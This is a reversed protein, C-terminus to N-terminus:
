MALCAGDTPALATEGCTQLVIGNGDFAHVDAVAVDYVEERGDPEVSEVTATYPKKYFGRRMSITLDAWKQAKVSNLFGVVGMYRAANAGTVILRYSRQSLYKGGRKGWDVVQEDKLNRISSRIGLRALMRQVAQLASLDISTLRVSVGGATSCGEIHGDADFLGRLFGQYFHSSAREVEPTVTKRGHAIGFEKALDRIGATNLRYQDSQSVRRWGKFDSRVGLAMVQEYLYERIVENGPDTDWVAVAARTEGPDFTGDGVLSGLVYGQGETGRGVWSAGLNDSLRVLTGPNLDGAAVWEDRADQAYRSTKPVYTLVNHDATLRAEYGEFTRLKVVDKIGTRFFGNSLSEYPKADLVATFPTGVLDKVRRAGESTLVWTSGVVCPNTAM